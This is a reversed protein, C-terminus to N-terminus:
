RITSIQTKSYQDQQAFPFSRFISEISCSSFPVAVVSQTHIENEATNIVAQAIVTSYADGTDTKPDNNNSETLDETPKLVPSSIKSKEIILMNKPSSIVKEFVTEEELTSIELSLDSVM